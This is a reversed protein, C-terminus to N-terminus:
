IYNKKANLKNFMFQILKGKRAYYNLVSINIITWQILMLNDTEEIVPMESIVREYTVLLLYYWWFFRTFIMNM